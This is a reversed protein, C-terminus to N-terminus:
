AKALASLPLSILIETGQANSSVSSTGKMGESRLRINRLGNGESIVSTDFGKGNDAIHMELQQGRKKIRAKVLSAQSYKAANNIIEKFILYVNQKAELSFDFDKLDPDVEFELLANQASLLLTATSEMRAFLREANDNIPNLNWVIDGLTSITERANEGIKNVLEMVREPENNKLKNKIAETYISISSLTAGVDDHLDASLRKRQDLIANQLELKKKLRVSNVGMGILLILFVGGGIISNRRFLEDKLRKNELEQNRKELALQATKAQAETQQQKMKREQNELELQNNLNKISLLNNLVAEKKTAEKQLLLSFSQAEIAKEKELILLNKNTLELKQQAIEKDKKETEFRGIAEQIIKTKDLGFLSDRIRISKLLQDTGLPKSESTALLKLRLDYVQQLTKSKKYKLAFKEASDLFLGAQKFNKMEFQVSALNLFDPAFEGVMKYKKDLMLAKSFYDNAKEFEGKQQHSIGLNAVNSIISPGDKLTESIKLAENLYQIAEDYKKKRNLTVGINMYSQAIPGQFGLKKRIELAKLHYELAKDYDEINKLGIGINNYSLSLLNLNQVQEYYNALEIQVKIYDAYNSKSLYLSALVSKASIEMDKNKKGVAYALVEDLLFKAEDLKQVKIKLHALYTNQSIAERYYGNKQFTKKSLNSYHIASDLIANYKFLRAKYYYSKALGYPYNLIASLGRTLNTLSDYYSHNERGYNELFSHIRNIKLTDGKETRLTKLVSDAKMQGLVVLHCFSLCLTLFWIKAMKNDMRLGWFITSIMTKCLNLQAFNTWKHIPPLYGIRIQM